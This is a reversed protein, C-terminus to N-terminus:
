PCHFVDELDTEFGARLDSYNTVFSGYGKNNYFDARTLDEYEGNTLDVIRYLVDNMGPTEVATLRVKFDSFAIRSNGFAKVPDITFSYVGGETMGYLDGSCAAELDPSVLETDGNFVKVSVGVPQSGVNSLRYEVKVDTSWPWQQRVIVNDVDVAYVSAAAFVAIIALVKKM